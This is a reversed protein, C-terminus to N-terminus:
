LTPTATPTPTPTLTPYSRTLAPALTHSAEMAAAAPLTPLGWFRGIRALHAPLDAHLAEYQLM